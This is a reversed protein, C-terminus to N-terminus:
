IKVKLAKRNSIFEVEGIVWGKRLNSCTCYDVYLNPIKKYKTKSKCLKACEYITEMYPTEDCELIVYCSPFSSLHFFFHCPKAKELIEWNEKASTGIKCPINHVTTEIM